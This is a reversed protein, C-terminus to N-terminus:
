IIQLPFQTMAGQLQVAAHRSLIMPLFILFQRKQQRWDSQFLGMQSAIRTTEERVGDDLRITSTAM